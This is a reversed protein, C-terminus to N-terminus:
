LSYLCNRCLCLIYLFDSGHQRSILAVYILFLTITLEYLDDVFDQIMVNLEGSVVMLEVSHVHIHSLSSCIIPVFDSIRAQLLIEYWVDTGFSRLKPAVYFHAWGPSCAKLYRQVLEGSIELDDWSSGVASEVLWVFGRCCPFGLSWFLHLVIFFQNTLHNLECEYEVVLYMGNAGLFQTSKSDPQVLTEGELRSLTTNGDSKPCFLSLYLSM